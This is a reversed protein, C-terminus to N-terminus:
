ARAPELGAKPVMKVAGKEPRKKIDVSIDHHLHNANPFTLPRGTKEDLHARVAPEDNSIFDQTAQLICFIQTILQGASPMDRYNALEFKSANMQPLTQVALIDLPAYQHHLTVEDKNRPPATQYSTPSM